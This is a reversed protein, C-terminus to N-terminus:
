STVEVRRGDSHREYISGDGRVKRVPAADIADIRARSQTARREREGDDLLADALVAEADARQQKTDAIRREVEPLSGFWPLTGAFHRDPDAGVVEYGSEIMLAGLRLTTMDYGTGNAVDPGLEIVRISLKLNRELGLSRPDRITTPLALMEGTLAKRWATLHDLWAQHPDLSPLGALASRAAHINAIRHTLLSIRAMSADVEEEARTRQVETQALEAQINAVADDVTPLTTAKTM